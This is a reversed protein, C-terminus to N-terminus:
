LQALASVIWIWDPASGISMVSTSVRAMEAVRPTSAMLPASIAPTMPRISISIKMSTMYRRGPTAASM